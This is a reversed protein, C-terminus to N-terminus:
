MCRICTTRTIKSMDLTAKYIHPTIFCSLFYVIVVAACCLLSSSFFLQPLSLISHVLRLQLLQALAVPHRQRLVGRHLHTGIVVCSEGGGDGHVSNRKLRRRILAAGSLVSLVEGRAKGKLVKSGIRVQKVRGM